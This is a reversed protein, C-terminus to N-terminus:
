EALRASSEDAPRLEGELATRWRAYATRYPTDDDAAEVVSVIEQHAMAESLSAYARAAVGAARAAGVAGTTDYIEIQAGSLTALTEAFIRSQFLNDNGVRIQSMDMGMARMLDMGYHFAFAIGELGARFVHERRHRNFDIGRLQAGINQNQLMREAGNGFPLFHVGEAGVPITAAATEMAGFDLESAGVYDRLWRHAIGVGNICLLVGVRQQDAQHNVHAFSNVRSHIDFAPRDVVGYVVGSTGGTAAVEGPRLVNLSLANNPQDGARYGVPIGPRLGLARAAADTLHGQIGVTPVLPAIKNADLEYDDLILEALKNEKFDWLIGESLGTVTTTAHGTMRLAIFDGPLLAYATRAYHEPENEKVWRLKSATFNGPSNLCHELCLGSGIRAFAREGIEVARSDCWIISPRIVAHQQDVLVLGHMQYSIGIGGVQGTDIGTEELMRRTARQVYTWWTEPDQEAWGPQPATMEMEREPESIRALVEGTGSEVLAAKVSSSGIDYGILYV